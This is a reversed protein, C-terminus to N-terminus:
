QNAGWFGFLGANKLTFRITIPRTADFASGEEWIVAVDLSDESVPLSQAVVDQSASDLLEVVIEGFRSVANLHLEGGPLLVPVTEVTGGSSPADLSVFRELAITGFGIGGGSAGKDDGQYPSHRYTRGGFYFRLEDDVRIPPNNAVSTNFRDWSGVPGLPIFPTRDGVRNFSVGDRSVALQIDLYCTNEQNHFIQVLGIYVGEYPFVQMSYIETGPPDEIDATMVVPASAPATFEWDLFDPSEVRAVARGWCNKEVWPDSAWASKLELPFYKTRGYLVYNNTAPDVMWYTGGDCIADTAFSNHLTWHIGDPSTAVGLGRRQGTHYPDESPGSYDRQICLYGMVYRANPDDANEDKHVGFLEYFHPLHNPAGEVANRDILINTDQGDVTHLGLRPKTWAIGDESEAYSVGAGGHYWMRYRNGDRLVSGYVIAVTGEWPETPWLVPNHESKAVSHITRTVNEMRAIVHDDLFLQKTSDVVIPAQASAALMVFFLSSLLRM